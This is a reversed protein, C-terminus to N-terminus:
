DALAASTELPVDALYATTYTAQVTVAAAALAADTDGASRDVRREWGQGATPHERLYGAM